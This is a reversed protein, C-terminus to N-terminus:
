GLDAAWAHEVISVEWGGKGRLGNDVIVQGNGMGWLWRGMAWKWTGVFVQGNGTAWHGNMGTLKQGDREWYGM